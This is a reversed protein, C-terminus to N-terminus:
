SSDWDGSAELDIDRGLLDEAGFEDLVGDAELVDGEEFYSSKNNPDM